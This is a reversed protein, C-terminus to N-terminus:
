RKGREHAYTYVAALSKCVMDRGQDLDHLNADLDEIYTRGGRCLDSLALNDLMEVNILHIEMNRKERLRALPPQYREKLESLAGHLEPEAKRQGMQRLVTFYSFRPKMRETQLRFLENMFYGLKDLLSFVRIIGNKYFYVHRRYAISEERSMAEEYAHIVSSRCLRAAFASEELEDLGTLFGRAWVDFRTYRGCHPSLPDICKELDSRYAAIARSAKRLDGRDKREPEGFLERLM